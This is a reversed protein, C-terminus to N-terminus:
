PSQRCVSAVGENSSSAADDFTVTGKTEGGELGLKDFLGDYDDSLDSKILIANTHWSM